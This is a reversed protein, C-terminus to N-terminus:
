DIDMFDCADLLDETARFCFWGTGVVAAVAALTFFLGKM